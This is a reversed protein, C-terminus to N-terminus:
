KLEMGRLNAASLDTKIQKMRKDLGNLEQQMSELMEAQSKKIESKYFAQIQEREIEGASNNKTLAQDMLGYYKQEEDKAKQQWLIKINRKEDRLESYYQRLQEVSKQAQEKNKITLKLKKLKKKLVIKIDETKTQGSKNLIEINKLDNILALAKDIRPDESNEFDDSEKLFKELLVLAQERSGAAFEIFGKSFLKDTSEKLTRSYKLLTEALGSDDESLLDPQDTILKLWINLAKEPKDKDYLYWIHDFFGTIKREEFLAKPIIQKSNQPRKKLPKLNKKLEAVIQERVNTEYQKQSAKKNELDKLKKILYSFNQNPAIASLSKIFFAAQKNDDFKICLEAAVIHFDINIPDRKILRQAYKLALPYNGRKSSEAIRKLYYDGLGGSAWSLNGSTWSLGGTMLSIILVFHILFKIYIKKM